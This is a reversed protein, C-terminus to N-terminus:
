NQNVIPKKYKKITKAAELIEARTYYVRGGVKRPNLVGDKGWKIITTLSIAPNFLKCAEKQSILAERGEESTERKVEERIVERISNLFEDMPVPTLIVKDM